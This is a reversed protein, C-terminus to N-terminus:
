PLLWVIQALIALAWAGLLLVILIILPSGDDRSLRLPPPQPKKM